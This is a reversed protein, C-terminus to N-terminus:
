VGPYLGLYPLLFDATDTVGHALIPTALSFRGCLYLLDLLAGDIANEIMGTIGRDM